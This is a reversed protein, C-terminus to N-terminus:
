RCAHIWRRPRDRDNLWSIAYGRSAILQEAEQALGADHVECLIAPRVERLLWDAGKLVEAECGEVDIKVLDPLPHARAFDDLTTCPAEFVDASKSDWIEKAHAHGHGHRRDSPEMLMTGTRSFAAARLLDLRDALGNVRANSEICAFNTPDPEFTFVRAGSRVAALAYFGIGGGVDYIIKGPRFYAAVAHQVAPEYEGRWLQNEWRPSLELRLGEGLGKQVTLLKQASSPLLYFSAKRLIDAAVRSALLRRVIALNRLRWWLKERM